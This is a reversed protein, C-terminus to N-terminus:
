LRWYNFSLAECAVKDLTGKLDFIWAGQKLKQSLILLFLPDKYDDHGVCIVAASMSNSLLTDIENSVEHGYVNKYQDSNVYPDQFIFDNHADLMHARIAAAGSHRFDGINEKYSVGFLGILGDRVKSMIENAILGPVAENMEKVAKVLNLKFNKQTNLYYIPNIPLCEGSVIGPIVDVFNWKTSCAELVEDSNLGLEKCHFSLENALAIVTARQINEYIKAIEAVEIAPCIHVQADLVEEYIDALAKASNKSDGSVLKNIKSITHQKDGPNIREPSYCIHFDIGIDLSNGEEDKVNQFYKRVLERTLGPYGSSEYCVLVNSTLNKSIIDSVMEIITTDVRDGNAPTPVCVLILGCFRLFSPDATFTMGEPIETQAMPDIRGKFFAIKTTDTDYGIVSFGKEAFLCALPLGVYGLGVVGVRREGYKLSSLIDLM